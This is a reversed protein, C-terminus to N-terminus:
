LVPVKLILFRSPLLTIRRHPCGAPIFLWDGPNLETREGGLISRGILTANEEPAPHPDSLEGGTVISVSGSILFLVDMVNEHLEPVTSHQPEEEKFIVPVGPPINPRTGKLLHGTLKVATNM